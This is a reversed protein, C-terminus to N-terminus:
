YARETCASPESRAARRNTYRPLAMWRPPLAESRSMSQSSRPQFALWADAVNRAPMQDSRTTTLNRNRESTAASSDGVNTRTPSRSPM